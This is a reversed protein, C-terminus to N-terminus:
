KAPWHLSPHGESPAPPFPEVESPRGGSPPDPSVEASSSAASSKCSCPEWFEIREEAEALQDANLAAFAATARTIRADLDRSRFLQWPMIEGVMWAAGRVALRLASMDM